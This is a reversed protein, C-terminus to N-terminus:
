SPPAKPKLALPAPLILSVTTIGGPLLIMYLLFPFTFGLAVPVMELVALTVGGAPNLSGFGPFLVAVSVSLMVTLASRFTVTVSPLVAATGPVFSVYMIMTVFAPGLLMAPATMWSWKGLVNVPTVNVAVCLPPAVPKVLLPLPSTDWVTAIGEPLWM